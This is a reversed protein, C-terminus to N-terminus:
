FIEEQLNKKLFSNRWKKVCDNYFLLCSVLDKM